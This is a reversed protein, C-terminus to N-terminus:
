FKGYPIKLDVDGRGNHRVGHGAFVRMGLSTDLDSENVKGALLTNRFANSHGDAVLCSSEKIIMM